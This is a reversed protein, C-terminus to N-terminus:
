NRWFGHFNGTPVQTSFQLSMHNCPFVRDDLSTQSDENSFTMKPKVGEVVHTCLYVCFCVFVGERFHKEMLLRIEVESPALVPFFFFFFSDDRGGLM